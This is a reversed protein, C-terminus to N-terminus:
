AHAVPKSPPVLFFRGIAADFTTGDDREFTYTGEMTGWPTRLPCASMYEFQEGPALRPTKGVVGPGRVDERQNNADLIIWHRSRLKAPTEGENRIVIRYTYFWRLREPDTESEVIQAQAQVRIGATLTDSSGPRTQAPNAPKM